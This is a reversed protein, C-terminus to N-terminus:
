LRISDAPLPSVPSTTRAASQASGTTTAVPQRLFYPKGGPLVPGAGTRLNAPDIGSRRIPSVPNRDYAGAIVAADDNAAITM